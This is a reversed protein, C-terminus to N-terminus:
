LFTIINKPPNVGIVDQTGKMYLKVRLGDIQYKICAGLLPSDQNTEKQITRYSSELEFLKNIDSM